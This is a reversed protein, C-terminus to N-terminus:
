RQPATTSLRLAEALYGDHATDPRPLGSLGWLIAVVFGLVVATGLWLVRESIGNGGVNKTTWKTYEEDFAAMNAGKQNL